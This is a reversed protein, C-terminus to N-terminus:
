LSGVNSRFQIGVCEKLLDREIIIVVFSRCELYSRQKYRRRAVLECRGAKDHKPYIHAPVFGNSKMATVDHPPSPGLNAWLGDVVFSSGLTKHLLYMADEHKLFVISPRDGNSHTPKDFCPRGEAVTPTIPKSQSRNSCRGLPSRFVIRGPGWVWLDREWACRALHAQQMSSSCRRWVTEPGFEQTSVATPSTIVDLFGAVFGPPTPHMVIHQEASRM